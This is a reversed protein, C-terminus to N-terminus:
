EKKLSELYSKTQSRLILDTPAYVTKVSLVQDFCDLAKTLYDIKQIKTLSSDKEKAMETYALGLVAYLESYQTDWLADRQQEDLSCLKVILEFYKKKAESDKLDSAYFFIMRGASVRGISSLRTFDMEFLSEALQKWLFPFSEKLILKGSRTYQNHAIQFLIDTILPDHPHNEWLSELMQLSLKLWKGDRSPTLKNIRGMDRSSLIAALVIVPQTDGAFNLGLLEKEMMEETFGAYDPSVIAPYFKKLAQFDKKKAYRGNPFQTCYRSYYAYYRRPELFLLEELCSEAGQADKTKLAEEFKFELTGSTPSIEKLSQKKFYSVAEFLGNKKSYKLFSIASSPPVPNSFLEYFSILENEEEGAPPKLAVTQSLPILDILGLETLLFARYEKDWIVTVGGPSLSNQIIGCAKAVSERDLYLFVNKVSICDYPPAYEPPLDAPLPQTVDQVIFHIRDQFFKKYKLQYLGEENKEFFETMMQNYQKFSLTSFKDESYTMESAEAIMKPDIDSALIKFNNIGLSFLEMAYSLIEQGTSCGYVKIRVPRGEEEARRSREAWWQRLYKMERWDRFFATTKASCFREAIKLKFFTDEKKLAELSYIGNSVLFNKINNRLPNLYEEPINSFDYNQSVEQLIIKLEEYFQSENFVAVELGKEKFAFTNNFFSKMETDAWYLNLFLPLKKLLEPDEVKCFSLRRNESTTFHILPLHLFKLEHDEETLDPFFRDEGIVAALTYNKVPKSIKFLYSQLTKLPATERVPPPLEPIWIKLFSENSVAEDFLAPDSLLLKDFAVPTLVGPTPAFEVDMKSGFGEKKWVLMYLGQPSEWCVYAQESNWLFPFFIGSGADKLTQLEKQFMEWTKSQSAAEKIHSLVQRSIRQIEGPLDDKEEAFLCLNLGAASLFLLIYIFIKFLGSFYKM